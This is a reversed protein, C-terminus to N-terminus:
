DPLGCGESASSPRTDHRYAVQEAATLLAAGILDSFELTNHLIWQWLATRYVRVRITCTLWSNIMNM